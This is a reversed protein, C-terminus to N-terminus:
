QRDSSSIGRDADNDIKEDMKVDNFKGTPHSEIAEQTHHWYYGVVMVMAIAAMVIVFEM